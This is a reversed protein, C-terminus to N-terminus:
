FTLSAFIARVDSALGEFSGNSMIVVVDDPKAATVMQDRLAEVSAFSYAEKGNGSLEGVLADVDLLVINADRERAQVTLLFVQDSMQFADRYEEFFVARRSSNSRFEFASLIRRGPFREHLGVLIERVATPHHAFDEILTLPGDFLVQQRRTLGSFTSLAQLIDPAAISATKAAVYAAVLNRANFRGFLKSRIHIQEGEPTRVAVEMEQSEYCISAIHWAASEHEGFTIIPAKSPGRWRELASAIHPFDVCALVIGETPVSRVLTDFEVAIMELSEYIDAHDFELANVILLRPSYFHFKPVKAFFASDYEDGEVVSFSGTGRHLSQSLSAVEAGVFFSPDLGASQLTHAILATTTSKGHTGSVVISYRGNIIEESLAQPFCTYALRQEEVAIVEPNSSPVSNGIVVLGIDKSINGAAYGNFLTVKSARLLSAIPDYFEKDSGSVAYGSSSLSLALQGMAVGCVGVFHIHAGKPLSSLATCNEISFYNSTM